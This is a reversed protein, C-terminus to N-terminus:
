QKSILENEDGEKEEKDEFGQGIEVSPLTLEVSINCGLKQNAEEFTEKMVNFLRDIVAQNLSQQQGIESTIMREKKRIDNVPIGLHEKLQNEFYQITNIYTDINDRRDIQKFDSSKLVDGIVVSKANNDSLKTELNIQSEEEDFANNPVALLTPLSSIGNFILENKL